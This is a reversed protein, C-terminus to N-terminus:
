ASGAMSQRVSQILFIPGGKLDSQLIPYNIVALGGMLKSDTPLKSYKFNAGDWTRASTDSPRISLTLPEIGM